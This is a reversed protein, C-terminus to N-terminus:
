SYVLEGKNGVWNNVGPGADDFFDPDTDKFSRNYLLDSDLVSLLAIDFSNSDYMRNHEVFAHDSDQIVIGLESRYIQNRSITTGSSTVVYIGVDVDDIRNHAVWVDDSSLVLIGTNTNAVGDGGSIRNHSVAVDGASFILIGTAGFQTAAPDPEFRLDRIINHRVEGDSGQGVQIGVQAAQGQVAPTGVITNRIVAGESGPGNIVVGAKQFDDIQNDRITASGVTDGAIVSSDGVLIAIGRQDGTLPTGDRVAIHNRRILASAGDADTDGVFVAAVIGPTGHITFGRLQVDNAHVKVTAETETAPAVIVAKHPRQSYLKLGPKDSGVVVSEEYTGPAVLVIDNEDAADVADQISTFDAAFFDSGDDDVRFVEVTAGSALLQRQELREFTGFNRMILDGPARSACFVLNSGASLTVELGLREFAARVVKKPTVNEKNCRKASPM